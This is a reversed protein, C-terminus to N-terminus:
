VLSGNDGAVDLETVDDQICQNNYFLFMKYDEYNDWVTKSGTLNQWLNDYGQYWICKVM